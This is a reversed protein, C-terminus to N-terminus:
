RLSFADVGNVRFNYYDRNCRYAFLVTLSLWGFMFSPTLFKWVFLTILITFALSTLLLMAGRKPMGLYIYYFLGFFFAMPNLVVKQREVSSMSLLKPSKHGGAKHILQFRSKWKESLDMQELDLPPLEPLSAPDVYEKGIMRDNWQGFKKIYSDLSM